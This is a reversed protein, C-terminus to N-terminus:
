PSEAPEPASTTAVRDARFNRDDTVVAPLDSRFGPLLAMFDQVATSMLRPHVEGVVTKVCGLGGFSKLVECEGGEIDIKLVDVSGVGAELLLDDLKASRVSIPRQWRTAPRTSSKWSDLRGASYLTVTGERETVATNFLTVQPMSGVNRRLKAFNVPDPEVAVIRASPFRLSFFLVSAGIHAGLDVVVDPPPIDPLDYVQRGFVEEIIALDADSDARWSVVNNGLRLQHETPWNRGLRRLLPTVVMFIAIALRDRWRAGFRAVGVTLLLRYRCRGAFSRMVRGVM